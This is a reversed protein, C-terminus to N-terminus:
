ERHEGIGGRSRAAIQNAPRKAGSPEPRSHRARFQRASDRLAVTRTSPPMVNDVTHAVPSKIGLKRLFRRVTNPIRYRVSTGSYTRFVFASDILGSVANLAEELSLDVDSAIACLDQLAVDPAADLLAALIAQQSAELEHWTWELAAEISEHRTQVLRRLHKSPLDIDRELLLAVAEIGLLATHHAALEIALPLGDMEHVIMRAHDIFADDTCVGPDLAQVRTLFLTLAAHYPEASSEDLLAPVHMVKELTIRLPARRTVLVAIRARRRFSGSDLLAQIVAATIRDCDDLLLVAQKDRTQACWELAKGISHIADHETADTSFCLYAAQWGRQAVLNRAVEIALRSKGSGAPGSLTIVPTGSELDSILREINDDRAVLPGHVDPLPFPVPLTPEESAVCVAQVAQETIPEPEECIVPVTLRYGRGSVTQILHRQEGFLRRLTCIHVQINNEEVVTSPWVKSLIQETSVLAGNADLLLELLDFARSSMRVAVGRAFLQRSERAVELEGIKM